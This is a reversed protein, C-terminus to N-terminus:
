VNANSLVPPNHTLAPVATTAGGAVGEGAFKPVAEQVAHVPDAEHTVAATEYDVSKVEKSITFNSEYPSTRDRFTPDAMETHLIVAPIAPASFRWDIREFPSYRWYLLQLHQDPRLQSGLNRRLPKFSNKAVLLM